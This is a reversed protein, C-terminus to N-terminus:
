GVGSEYAESAGRDAAGVVVGSRHKPLIGRTRCAAPWPLDRWQPWKSRTGAQGLQAELVFVQGVM